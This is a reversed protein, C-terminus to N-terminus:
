IEEGKGNAIAEAIFQNVKTWFGMGKADEMLGMTMTTMDMNPGRLIKSGKLSVLREQLEDNSAETNMYVTIVVTRGNYRVTRDEEEVITAKTM